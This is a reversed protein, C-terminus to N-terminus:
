KAKGIKNIKKLYIKFEEELLKLVRDIKVTDHDYNKYINSFDPFEFENSGLIKYVTDKFNDVSFPKQFYESKLPGAEMPDLASVVILPCNIKKTKIWNDLNDRIKENELILDSIILDP